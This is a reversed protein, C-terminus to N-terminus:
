KRDGGPHPGNTPRALSQGFQVLFELGRESDLIEGVSPLPEVDWEVVGVEGTGDHQERNHEDVAETAAHETDFLAVIGCDRCIARVGDPHNGKPGVDGTVQNRELADSM